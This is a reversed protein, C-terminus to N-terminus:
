FGHKQLFALTNNADPHHLVDGDIILAPTAMIGYRRALAMFQKNQNERKIYEIDNKFQDNLGHMFYHELVVCKPCADQTLIQIKKM